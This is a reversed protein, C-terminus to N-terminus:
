GRQSAALGLSRKMRDKDGAAPFAPCPFGEKLSVAVAVRENERSREIVKQDDESEDVEVTVRKWTSAVSWCENRFWDGYIESRDYKGMPDFM